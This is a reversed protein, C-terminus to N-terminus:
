FFITLRDGTSLDGSLVASPSSTANIKIVAGIQEYDPTEGALMNAVGIQLIGGNVSVILDGNPPASGITFFGATDEAPTIEHTEIALGSAAPLGSVTSALSSIASVTGEQTNNMSNVKDLLEDLLRDLLEDQQFEADRRYIFDKSIGDGNNNLAM